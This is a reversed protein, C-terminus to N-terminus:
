GLNGRRIKGGGRNNKGKGELMDIEWTEDITTCIISIRKMTSDLMSTDRKFNDELRGTIETKLEQLAECGVNSLPENEFYQIVLRAYILTDKVNQKEAYENLKSLLKGKRRIILGRIDPDTRAAKDKETKELWEKIAELDEKDKDEPPVECSYHFSKPAIEPAKDSVLDFDPLEVRGNIIEYDIGCGDSSLKFYIRKSEKPPISESISKTSYKDFGFESGELRRIRDSIEGEKIVEKGEVYVSLIKLTEKAEFNVSFRSIGKSTHNAICLVFWYHKFRDGKELQKITERITPFEKDSESTTIPKNNTPDWITRKISIESKQPTAEKKTPKSEPEHPPTKKTKRKKLMKIIAIVVGPGFIVIIILCIINIWEKLWKLFDNSSTPSAPTPSPTPVIPPVAVATDEPTPTVITIPTPSPTPTTVIPALTPAQTPIPSSPPTSTLTPTPSFTPPPAPKTYRVTRTVTKTNGAKDEAVIKITNTGESLSITKSWFTTGAYEENVTVSQIGSSDSATGSITISDEAVSSPIESVSVSPPTTDPPIYRVTRTVTKTNGVKDKAVITITNTGESLSITKSWSTTGAYVGNVTVSQIGSSDSATGSITISDEAVSSPVENVSISPPSTDPPPTPPYRWQGFVKEFDLRAGDNMKITLSVADKGSVDFTYTLREGSEYKYYSHHHIHADSESLKDIKEERTEGDVIIEASSSSTWMDVDVALGEGWGNNCIYITLDLKNAGTPVVITTKKMYGYIVAKPYYDPYLHVRNRDDFDEYTYTFTDESGEVTTVINVAAFISILILLVVFTSVVRSKMEMM